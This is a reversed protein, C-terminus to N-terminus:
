QLNVRLQLKLKKAKKIKNKIKDHANSCKHFKRMIFTRYNNNNNNNNNNNVKITCFERKTARIQQILKCYVSM